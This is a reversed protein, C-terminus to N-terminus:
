GANFRRCWARLTRVYSDAFAEKGVKPLGAAAAQDLLADRCPPPGGRFIYRQM